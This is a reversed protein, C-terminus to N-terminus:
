QLGFLFGVPRLMKWMKQAWEAFCQWSQIVEGGEESLDSVFLQNVLLSRSEKKYESVFTVNLGLTLM